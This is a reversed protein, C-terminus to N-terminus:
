VNNVSDLTTCYECQGSVVELPEKWFLIRAEFFNIASFNGM